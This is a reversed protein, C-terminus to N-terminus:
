AASTVPAALADPIGLERYDALARQLLERGRESEPPTKALLYRGYDERTRAVWPRLGMRENAELADDFHSTADDPRGLLAALLGLHRSISGRMGEPQDVANYTAWPRLLRYLTEASEEDSLLAAAEALLASAFLWEQDFPLAAFENAALQHLHQKAELTRGSQAHLHVLACRFVVRAPYREVLERLAPELEEAGGQFERLAYRQLVRIPMAADPVARRGVEVARDALEAAAKFDGTNLAILARTTADDWLQPAQKLDEAILSLATIERESAQLEGLMLFALTRVSHGAAVREREGLATAVACLENGLRLLEDVTDPATIAHGRAGLAYALASLNGSSRAIEIAERSLADRRERSPEDRLAGALRALLRSRLDLDDDGLAQLAEELLPVLRDDGGARVWVIRGGYGIAARALLGPLGLRRAIEAAALFTTKASATDGARTRADGLALLLECRTMDDAAALPVTELALEFLRIAEEYALLSLAREAGLRAYRLAREFDSAALSHHALEAVHQGAAQGYLAEIADVVRRHLGIRRAATVSEYLTDRILVHAFRLHGPLDPVDTVVGARMAEDLLEFTEDDSTRAARALVSTSFERGLVSALVLRRQCDASLHELRRAIVAQVGAPVALRASREDVLLRVMESVFLPNGETEECLEAALDPSALDAATVSLYEAVDSEGLGRLRLVRTVPERVLESLAATLAQGPVPDVNRYAGIVLLRTPALERAVFQLLLLSPADASHLDDLFLVIPRVTSAERLFTAVTDFLHFRSADSEIAGPQELDPPRPDGASSYGRLSQVWPWFAPAGGAEWCRGALIAAGRERATRTFADALASKGIGPEGELLVLRGRGAAADAFAAALEALEAARGVFPGRSATDPQASALDLAADQRLIQQQLRRLRPGPEIGLEDVLARRAAQYAELADAQRGSRYLALLLQGILRERGPHERTLSELEGVLESHRGRALDDDIRDEVAALRLDELRAIESQAFRHYAFDALPPGRWVALAEAIRGEAKLALFRDLDLEGPEVTLTYGLPRSRIREKGLVKRLQSVLVQLGKAATATPRGDWIAEILRDTSAVRNAELLLMALLVRQKEGGLELTQGDSRVELPGLLCFEYM